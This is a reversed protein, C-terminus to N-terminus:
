EPAVSGPRVELWKQAEAISMTVVNAPLPVESEVLVSDPGYAEPDFAHVGLARCYRDLMESTFRDRITRSQYAAPEEFVQETGNANFVWRTGDFVVSVTRVYNLFNTKIPGFLTFQVAGSRGQRIGPLGITHPVDEIALGQCELRRCLVSIASVADTGRLSNDFYATWSGAAVLLERPRAGSVLPELQRLVDPFSSTTRRAVVKAYLSQRWHELASAAESLPVELFGVSSTVPAYQEDLLTEMIAETSRPCTIIGFPDNAGIRGAHGAGRGSVSTDFEDYYRQGNLTYQLDPRNIGVRSGNIDVQQQNVRLDTAGQEQLSGIRSQVFENQSDSLGVPRNLPLARPATPNVAVDQPLRALTADEAAVCHGVVLRLQSPARGLHQGAAIHEAVGVVTTVTPHIAGVRTEAAPLGGSATAAPLLMALVAALAALLLGSWPRGSAGSPAATSTTTTV